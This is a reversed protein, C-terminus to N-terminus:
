NQIKQKDQTIVHAPVGVATTNAPINKLVVANAGIKANEGIRIKGLIKAGAGIYVGREIIPAGNEATQGITVQQMILCDEKIVAERHIIVGSLHPFRVSKAIHADRNIESGSIISLFIYQLKAYNCRIRDIISKSERSNQYLHITAILKQDIHQILM